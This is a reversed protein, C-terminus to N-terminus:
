LIRIGNKLVEKVFADKSNKYFDNKRFFHFEIKKQIKKGSNKAFERLKKMDIDDDYLVCLDVDSNENYILKAYSGFLFMEIGKTKASFDTIDILSIIVKLPIKKLHIYTKKFEDITKETIENELDLSISRKYKKIIGSYILKKLATDLTVNSLMTHERLENRSFNRGPSVAFCM